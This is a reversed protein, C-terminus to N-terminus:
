LIEKRLEQPPEPLPRWHTISKGKDKQGWVGGVSAPNKYLKTQYVNGNKTCVLYKGSKTPLRELVSIWKINFASHWGDLYGAEYQARDYRLAKILEDKDVIIGYQQVAKYVDNEIQTRLETHIIEIPSIYSKM